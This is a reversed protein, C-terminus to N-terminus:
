ARKAGRMPVVRQEPKALEDLLDAWQQMMARREPLYEARNYAKRVKNREAHALQREIVDARFGIENLITSATARFGHGTARGRYGMRYLAFLITNESMCRLPHHENPFVHERNGSLRRIEELAVLAQHSLPVIHEEGMKMREAPIRWEARGIDFEPWTAGRLEGTRVFTLLLLRIAHKTLLNGDYAALKQLFEPLDARSLASYHRTERTELAGRLDRTPDSKAGGTAIAYRFVQGATVLTKRAIELAGRKEIARLADLLEPPEVDAIPRSGIRPFLEDELRARSGKAHSASWAAEKKKLWDRAVAEFTNAAKHKTLRKQERRVASPDIGDRLLRRADDRRVRAQALTVTGNKGNGYVGLALLKEKGAFRYKLRWHKLGKPTKPGGTRVLLFLGGSDYLKSKEGPRANRCDADTLV